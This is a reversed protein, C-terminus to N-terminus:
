PTDGVATAVGRSADRGAGSGVGDGVGCRRRPRCWTRCFDSGGVDRRLQNGVAM